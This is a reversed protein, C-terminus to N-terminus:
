DSGKNAIMVQRTDPQLRSGDSRALTSAGAAAGGADVRAAAGRAGRDCARMSGLFPWANVNPAIAVPTRNCARGYPAEPPQHPNAGPRREMCCAARRAGHWDSAPGNEVAGRDAAAGRVGWGGDWGRGGSGEYGSGGVWGVCACVCVCARTRLWWEIRTGNGPTPPSGIAGPARSRCAAGWAARPLHAQLAPLQQRGREECAVQTQSGDSPDSKSLGVGGQGRQFGGQQM